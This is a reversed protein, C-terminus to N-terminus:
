KKKNKESEQWEKERRVRLFVASFNYKIKRFKVVKKSIKSM